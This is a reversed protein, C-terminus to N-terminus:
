CFKKLEGSFDVNGNGNEDVERVMEYVEDM